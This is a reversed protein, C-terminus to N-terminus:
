VQPSIAYGANNSGEYKKQAHFTAGVIGADGATGLVFVARLYRKTRIFSKVTVSNDTVYSGTNANADAVDTFTTNDDSEQAKIALNGTNTIAGRTVVMHTHVDGNQFDVGTGNANAATNAAKFGVGHTMGNAMDVILQM